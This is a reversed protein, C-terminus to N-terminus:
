EKEKGRKGLRHDIMLLGAGKGGALELNNVIEESIAEEEVQERVFWQLFEETAPDQEARALFVLSHIHQTIELEHAYAAKFAAVPSDWEKQPASIAELVVKGGRENAYAFMKMGHETEEKAQLDMWHAMGRFGCSNFYASMALYLYASYFERNIQNNLATQIKENIKM